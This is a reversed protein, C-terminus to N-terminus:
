VSVPRLQQIMPDVWEVSSWGVLYGLLVGAFVDSPFHAEMLYRLLATISALIWWVIAADPWVQVLAISLAFACASHSSPFSERRNDHALSFGTFRGANERNPRIRGCIRKFVLSAVSALVVPAIVQLAVRADQKAISALWAAIPTCVSQGYQALFAGERKLDGKFSLTFTTRIGRAEVLLLIVCGSLLCAIVLLSMRVPLM